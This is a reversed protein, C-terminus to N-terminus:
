ACILPKLQQFPKHCDDDKQSALLKYINQFIDISVHVPIWKYRLRYSGKLFLIPVLGAPASLLLIPKQRACLHASRDTLPEM